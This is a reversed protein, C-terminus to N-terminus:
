ARWTGPDSCSRRSTSPMALLCTRPALPESCVQRHRFLGPDSSLNPTKDALAYRRTQDSLPLTGPDVVEKGREKFWGSCHHFILTVTDRVMDLLPKISVVVFFNKQHSSSQHHVDSLAGCFKKEEM